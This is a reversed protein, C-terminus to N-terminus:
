AIPPDTSQLTYLGAEGAFNGVKVTHMPGDPAFSGGGGGGGGSTNSVSKPKQPRYVDGSGSVFYYACENPHGATYVTKGRKVFIEEPKDVGCVTKLADKLMDGDADMRKNIQGQALRIRITDQLGGTLQYLSKAKRVRAAFQLNSAHKTKAANDFKHFKGWVQRATAPACEGLLELFYEFSEPRLDETKPLRFSVFDFSLTGTPPMHWARMAAVTARGNEIGAVEAGDLKMNRFACQTQHGCIGDESENIYMVKLRSVVAYDLYRSLNLLYKGTPNDPTFSALSGLSDLCAEWEQPLMGRELVDTNSPDSISSFAALVLRIRSSSWEAARSMELVQGPTFYLVHALVSAYEIIWEDTLKRQNRGVIQRWVLDFQKATLESVDVADLDAPKFEVWLQGLVPMRKPWNDKEMKEKISIRAGLYKASQWTHPGQKRALEVLIEAIQYDLQESLDLYYTGAPNQADFGKKTDSRQFTCYLLDVLTDQGDALEKVLAAAGEFGIPNHRLMLVRLQDNRRLSEALVISAKTDLRNASMNLAQLKDNERIAYGIAETGEPGLACKELDVSVLTPSTEIAAAIYNGGREGLVNWSLSIHELCSNNELALGLKAAGQEGIKCESLVLRKLTPNAQLGLALAATGTDGVPNGALSLHVLGTGDGRQREKIMLEMLCACGAPSGSSGIDCRELDLRTTATCTLNSLLNTIFWWSLM